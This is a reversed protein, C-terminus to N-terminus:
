FHGEINLIMKLLYANFDNGETFSMKPFVFKLLNGLTKHCIFLSEM